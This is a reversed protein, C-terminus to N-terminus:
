QQKRFYYLFQNAYGAYKGFYDSAFERIKDNSVEKNDFYNEQMVRKIWVDVPFAELKDLSFLCVCDAIKEGVGKIKMLEHKTKSYDLNALNNIYDRKIKNASQIYEARFGVKCKRLRELDSIKGPCPFSYSSYNNLKIKKGFESSILNLNQKIKPINAM